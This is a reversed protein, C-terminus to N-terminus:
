RGLANVPIGPLYYELDYGLTNLALALYYARALVPADDHHGHEVMMLSAEDAAIAVGVALDWEKSLTRVFEADSFTGIWAPEIDDHIGLSDIEFTSLPIEDLLWGEITNWLARTRAMFEQKSLVNTAPPTENRTFCSVAENATCAEFDLSLQRGTMPASLALFHRDACASKLAMPPRGSVGPANPM